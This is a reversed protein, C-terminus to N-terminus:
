STGNNGRSIATVGTRSIDQIGYGKVIEIFSDIKDPTGIIELTMSKPDVDVFKVKYIKSYNLLEDKSKKDKAAVKILCLERIVSGKDMESVKVTDILKNLQKEVQEIISDDGIVTIVMKSIGKKNTKGVTITDINYNRRAFMGSIRTLVGPQDEVLMSIVHKHQAM